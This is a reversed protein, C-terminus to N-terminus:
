MLAVYFALADFPASFSLFLGHLHDVFPRRRFALSSRVYSRVAFSIKAKEIKHQEGKVCFASSQMQHKNSRRLAALLWLLLLIFFWVLAFLLPFDNTNSENHAIHACTQHLGIVFSNISVPRIIFSISCVVSLLSHRTLLSRSFPKVSLAIVCFLYYSNQNNMVSDRSMIKKKRENKGRKQMTYFNMNKHWFRRWWLIENKQKENKIIVPVSLDCSLCYNAWCDRILTVPFQHKLSVFNRWCNVNWALLLYEDQIKIM